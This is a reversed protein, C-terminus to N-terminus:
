GGRAAGGAALAGRAGIPRAPVGAVVAYPEVSRTVVAGAAVIAGTGLTVGMLITANCGIWVDDEIRVPAAVLGQRHIPVDRRQHAHDSSMITVRHAIRVGNGIEVGGFGDVYVWENLTVHDGIRVREPFWITAGEFLRVRGLRGAFPKLAWYRLWDGLPSPVYKVLGYVSLYLGHRVYDALTTERPHPPARDPAAM